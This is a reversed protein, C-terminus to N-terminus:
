PVMADAFPAMVTEAIRAPESAQSADRERACLAWGKL